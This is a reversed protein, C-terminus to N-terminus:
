KPLQGKAKKDEMFAFFKELESKCVHCTVKNIDGTMQMQKRPACAPRLQGEHLVGLHIFRVVQMIPKKAM